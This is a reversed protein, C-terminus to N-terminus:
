NGPPRYDTRTLLLSFVDLILPGPQFAPTTGGWQGLFIHGPALSLTNSTNLYLIPPWLDSRSYFSQFPNIPLAAYEDASYVATPDKDGM